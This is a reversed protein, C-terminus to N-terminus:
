PKNVAQPLSMGLAKVLFAWRDAVEGVQKSIPKGAGHGARVDIRILAPAAPAHAAQAAQLAAAFKYSHAPVVRDDHDGTMVMIAPYCKDARVNHLPSYAYLAKFQEPNSSLGYDSAWGWGITFKDYRLMDLVGVAPVAAAFLEPRQTLTAGVLLGGNSGGGIALKAPQTVKNAILWEAAAIFDDFVNQKKLLTGAEHWQAGYEGGGRLNPIALVGGMEMWALNAVSFSPTLSINFGGYGYLWTPNSGDYKMGKKASIFMPVRTGDRSNIFVQRTEYDGPEFDAKTRRFLSSKGSKLDYRYIALPTTYDTYSYFVAHDALKGELGAVTGIGPLRLTQLLKGRLDTVQVRSHADKMYNLILKHDVLHASKLTDPSQAVIEQWKGSRIDVAVVRSREADKDTKFWFQQGLSGIFEYDADFKDLLPQVKAHKDRLDLYYIRKKHESGQHIDIVLYRGDDSLKSGFGWEKHDPRQYVLQDASQASGVRHFYLKQYYNVDALKTAEQPEDYRSYYFGKGDRTWTVESFKIWKLHDPLDQGTALDRVKWENWDSGAQATGYALYKGDPSLETGTLAVTGDSSLRNPDLIERPTDSLNKILYLVSQNQLGDNRQFVIQGGGSKPLLFREFNWLKTLRQMIAARQPVQSLFGETLKVQQLVWNKTDDSNADELWRYPDAVRTGHYDDFQEVQKSVPYTLETANRPCQQAQAGPGAILTALMAAILSSPSILNMMRTRILIKPPPAQCRNAASPSSWEAKVNEQAAHHYRAKGLSQAFVVQAGCTGYRTSTLRTEQSFYKALAPRSWIQSRAAGVM